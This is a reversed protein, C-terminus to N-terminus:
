KWYARGPIRADVYSPLINNNELYKAIEIIDSAQASASRNIQAKFPYEKGTLYLEVYRIAGSPIEVREVEYSGSANIESAVKGVFSLFNSSTVIDGDTSTAGIKDIISISPTEFYNVQFVAGFSDVYSTSGGEVSWMAIPDRFAITLKSSALGSASLKVTEVEPMENSVYNNLNDHRLAFRFREFPNQALYESVVDKYKAADEASLAVANSSFSTISGSYQLLMALGFICFVAIVSLITGLKRRRKRLDKVRQRETKGRDSAHLNKLTVGRKFSKDNLASDNAMEEDYRSHKLKM